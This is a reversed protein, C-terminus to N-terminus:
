PATSDYIAPVCAEFAPTLETLHDQWVQTALLAVLQRAPDAFWMTGYGGPWSFSGPSRAGFGETLAIALGLGFGQGRLFDVQPHLPHLQTPSLRNTTMWEVSRASLIRHQDGQGGNLLMRGFALYDDLTSVLGGGGAPFIPPRSWFGTAADDHVTFGGDSGREYGIALRDLQDPTVAFATDRMALPGLIAEDLFDPLSMGAARAVVVGLLDSGNSYHWRAGPQCVLPLACVRAVLTDGNYPVFPTTGTAEDMAHCIPLDLGKGWAFGATHTMLDFLTPAREVPVVDDLDSQPSRLVRLGAAEPLWLTLPADLALKGREVLVMAAASTIPKTMSALRFITDREFPLGRDSDRWGIADFVPEKGAQWVLASMGPYRGDEVFAGIPDLLSGM